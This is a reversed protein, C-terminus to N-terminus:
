SGRAERWMRWLPPGGGPLAVQEVVAFGHREYLAVNRGCTAELYAPVGEADCRDLVPDLLASGLGHGQHEPEVGVFALYFHPEHPHREELFSLARVIRTTARGTAPALRAILRLQALAGVEWAGPPAWFAAGVLGDTTWCEGQPLYVRELFLEFVRELRRARRSEDALCWGGVVPDDFFARTMATVVAPVDAPTVARVGHPAQQSLSVAATHSM